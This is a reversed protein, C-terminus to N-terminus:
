NLSTRFRRRLAIGVALAGFGLCTAPFAEGISQYVTSGDTTRVRRVLTGSIEMNRGDAEITAEVRGTPAIFGSIGSNTARIVNIVVMTTQAALDTAM